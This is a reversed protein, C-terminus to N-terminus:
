KCYGVPVQVEKVEDMEKAYSQAGAAVVVVEGAVLGPGPSCHSKSGRRNCSDRQSSDEESQQPIRTCGQPHVEEKLM